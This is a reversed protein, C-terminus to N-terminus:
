GPKPKSSKSKENQNDEVKTLDPHDLTKKRSFLNSWNSVSKAEITPAKSPIEKNLLSERHKSLLLTTAREQNLPTYPIWKGGQLFNTQSEILRQKGVDEFQKKLFVGEKWLALIERMDAM